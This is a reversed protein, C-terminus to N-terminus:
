RRRQKAAAKAGGRKKKGPPALDLFPMPPPRKKNAAWEEYWAAKADILDIAVRLREIEEEVRMRHALLLTRREDLTRWGAMSLDTYLKMEAVTMGTRRLRELFDLHEVHGQIYVRRGGADREVGPMLGQTEYWRITHVSRGTRKALGGIYFRDSM